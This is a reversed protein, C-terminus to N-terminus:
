NSSKSRQPRNCALRSSPASPKVANRRPKALGARLRPSRREGQRRLLRRMLHAGESHSSSGVATQILLLVEGAEFGIRTFGV